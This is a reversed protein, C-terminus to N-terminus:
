QGGPGAGLRSLGAHANFNNPDAALVERYWHKASARQSQAEAAMGLGLMAEAAAPGKTLKKLQQTAAAPKKECLAVMASAYHADPKRHLAGYAESLREYPECWGTPIFLVAERLAKVAKQYRQAKVAAAGLLYWADADGAEIAVARDAAAMAQKAKHQRLLDSGLGYYAAELQPNVASFQKGNTKGILERFIQASHDLDGSAALVEGQGLLATSQHPEAKLVEDYQELASDSKEAARDIEALSLRLGVNSPDSRVADEAASLQREILTPSSNSRDIFYIAVVAVVGVVVARIGLHILRDLTKESM